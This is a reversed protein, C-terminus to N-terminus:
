FMNWFSAKIPVLEKEAAAIDLHMLGPAMADMNPTDILERLDIQPLYARCKECWDIREHRRGEEGLIQMAERGEVGCAPCVGRVFYWDSGCMGCHLHKRGGGGSLFENNEAPPKRGLWAIVPPMGCVPCKGRRWDPFEEGRLPLALARLVASVIFGAAFELVQPEMGGNKALEILAEPSDALSAAVLAEPEPGDGLFFRELADKSSAIAPQRVVLPLIDAAALKLFPALGRPLQEALVPRDSPLKGLAIGAAALLPALKEATAQRQTFLPEFAEFFPKLVPRQKVCQAFTEAISLNRM